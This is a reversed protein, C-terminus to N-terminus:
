LPRYVRQLRERSTHTYIQTTSLSAHGLLDKVAMLDAGADLLHTAFSHRLSHVSVGEQEGARELLARVARQISRRSLREGKGNVLLPGRDAPAPTESRRLDYKRLAQCASSTLPVIREKGGKGRVKVQGGVTDLEELNMGHLESLRLGSGYLIELIALTRAADLTNQSADSEALDFVTDVGKRPLHSPLERESRHSRLGRAPNVELVEERHLFRLLTRVASIKRAISRKSLGRSQCSGLFGRLVLRDVDSWRWDPAGLYDGLFDELDGLDRRYAILTNESLQREDSLHRLFLESEARV